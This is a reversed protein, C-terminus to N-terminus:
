KPGKIQLEVRELMKLTNNYHSDPNYFIARLFEASIRLYNEIAIILQGRDTMTPAIERFVKQNLTSIQNAFMAQRYTRQVDFIIAEQFALTNELRPYHYQLQIRLSDDRILSIKGTSLLEDFTIKAPALRNTVLIRFLDAGMNNRVVGGSEAINKVVEEFFSWDRIVGGNNPGLSDLVELALILRREYNRRVDQISKLDTEFDQKLRLLYKQEEVRNQRDQSWSNIQLALLIGIVVLVIEGLAYLLYRTVRNQALFRYRLTRFFRFM